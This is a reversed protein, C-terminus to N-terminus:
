FLWVKNYWLGGLSLLEMSCSKFPVYREPGSRTARGSRHFTNEVIVYELLVHLLDGEMEFAPSRTGVLLDGHVLVVDGPTVDIM